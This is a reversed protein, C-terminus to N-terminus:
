FGAVPDSDAHVIIQPYGTDGLIVVSSLLHEKFLQNIYVKRMCAFDAWGISKDMFYISVARNEFLGSMNGLNMPDIQYKSRSMAFPKKTDIHSYVVIKDDVSCIRSRIEMFVNKECSNGIVYSKLLNLDSENETDFGVIEFTHYIVGLRKHRILKKSM